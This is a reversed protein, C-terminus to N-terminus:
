DLKCVKEQSESKLMLYLSLFLLGASMISIEAGHFPLYSISGGLGLLALVPLGCAACGSGIVGLLSSGGVVYQLKGLSRLTIIRQFLFTINIGTLMAVIILMTLSFGSMGTWMGGLLAYLINLKYSMSYAGFFTSKLLSINTLYNAVLVYLATIVLSSILLKKNALPEWM